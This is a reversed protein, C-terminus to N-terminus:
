TYTRVGYYMKIDNHLFSFNYTHIYVYTEYQISDGFNKYKIIKSITRNYYVYESM